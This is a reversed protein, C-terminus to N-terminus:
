AAAMASVSVAQIAQFMKEASRGIALPGNRPVPLFYALALGGWMEGSGGGGHEILRGPIFDLDVWQCYPSRDWAAELMGRRCDPNFSDHLAVFLPKMPVYHSLWAVDRKIGAASHEGDILIFEVPIGEKNLEALLRPVIVDSSGTLFRVSTINKLREPVTPDIDISYTMKSFQSILSLSGGYYTGVEISCQPKLRAVLGTLALKESENMQWRDFICNPYLIERWDPAVLNKAQPLSRARVWAPTQNRLTDLITIGYEAWTKMPRAVTERTLRLLLDPDTAMKYIAESLRGEHDVDATLCGGGAAAEAMVGHDACLCPRGHWVSEVVPMGYGEITSAYITFTAERYLRYLTADSVIGMWRIRPNERCISEVWDALDLAGAYRNGVLTLSWNLEPHKEQMHLCANILRRHNKRPELTSVCLIRIEDEASSEVRLNRPVGGFEGPLLDTVVECGAIGSDRWFDRLCTASYNSIPLVVDCEALGRMYAGHNNRMEENCLDPRLIPIADYFVAALRLGRIRAFQRIHRFREEMMLETCLLWPQDTGPKALIEDLGTRQYHAASLRERSVLPGNFQGLQDAEERTPLVYRRKDSEWIVFLPDEYNQLTRGTRRTVRIVGSNAPDKTSNTVDLIVHVRHDSKDRLRVVAEPKPQELGRVIKQYERVARDWTFNTRFRQLAEEHTAQDPGLGRLSESIKRAMEANDQCLYWPHAVVEPHAGIDFVLARKGLWQMEALFLNFGEWLSVSVGLDVGRMIKALAEDSPFSIPYVTSHLDAPIDIQAPEALVLLACDKVTTRVLRMLEFLCDSNKYCGAEWRGLCLVLPRGQRQLSDLLDLGYHDNSTAGSETAPWIGMEMHDAGLLVTKVEASGSSDPISQSRSIFDSIGVILSSAPLNEQRLRILKELTLRTGEGYGERPVVGCDIFVVATGMERFVPIAQLFPWGGILVVDPSTEPTFHQEWTSRLWEAVFENSDFYPCQDAPVTIIQAAFPELFERDFRNAMMTVRHGAEQLGKAIIMMVRDAGFRFLFRENAVLINM